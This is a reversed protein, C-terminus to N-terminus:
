TSTSGMGGQRKRSSEEEEGAVLYRLFLGQALAEGQGIRVERDGDNVLAVLIHGENGPNDAYDADIWGQCNRLRLGHRFGHGSRSNILLVEDPPMYAKIGSPIVRHEGPSLVVPFPSFMDYGASQRTARRPLIVIGESASFSAAGADRAFQRPSVKRFGRMPM